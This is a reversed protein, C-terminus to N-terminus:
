HLTVAELIMNMGEREIVTLDFWIDWVKTRGVYFTHYRDVTGMEGPPVDSGVHMEWNGYLSSGGMCWLSDDSIDPIGLSGLWRFYPDWTTLEGGPISYIDVCGIIDSGKSIRISGSDQEECIYEQPLRGLDILPVEQIEQAPLQNLIEITDLPESQEARSPIRDGDSRYKVICVALILVCLFICVTNLFAHIIKQGSM